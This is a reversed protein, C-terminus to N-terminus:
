KSTLYLPREECSILLRRTLDLARATVMKQFYHRNGKICFYESHINEQDGWAIWVSGVPKERSGGDPGAIGSVAIAIDANATFLAGKVMEVVTQQSVAGYEELTKLAVGIMKSKMQNSYTVFGAEFVSSSGAVKTIESAILGGTCSEATTIKLKKQQCLAVVLEALSKPKKDIDEILHDGLMSKLETILKDKLPVHQKNEITLKLELSPMAARFGLEVEEPWHAIENKILAQLKSEGIGFVQFRSINMEANLSFQKKLLPIIQEDLMIKLESPVGPTCIILCKNLYLSFGVASGVRNEVINCNDPLIAQKLNEISLEANRYNCWDKLHELAVSHQVLPIDAAQALAQATLDDTTPGLGGNIILVDARHSLQIIENVLLNLDDAVTVKKNIKLGINKCFQAIMASNSDVIDGTMLENGTLLLQINTM